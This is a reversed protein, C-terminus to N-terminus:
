NCGLDEWGGVFSNYAGLFSAYTMSQGASSSDKVRFVLSNFFLWEGQLLCFSSLVFGERGSAAIIFFLQFFCHFVYSVYFSFLFCVFWFFFCFFFCFLYFLYIFLYFLLLIFYFLSVLYSFVVVGLFFLFSIAGNSLIAGITYNPLSLKCHLNSM